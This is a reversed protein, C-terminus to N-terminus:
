GAALLFTSRRPCSFLPFSADFPTTHRSWYTVTLSIRCLCCTCSSSLIVCLALTSTLSNPFISYVACTLGRNPFISHVARLRKSKTCLFSPSHSVFFPVLISSSNCAPALLCLLARCFTSAFEPGQLRCSGQWPLLSSSSRLLSFPSDYSLFSCLLNHFSDSIPRNMACFAGHFTALSFLNCSLPANGLSSPSMTLYYLAMCSSFQGLLQSLSSTSPM